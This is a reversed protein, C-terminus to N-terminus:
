CAIYGLYALVPTSCRNQTGGYSALLETGTRDFALSTLHPYPM